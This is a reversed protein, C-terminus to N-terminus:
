VSGATARGPLPWRTRAPVPSFWTRAGAAGSTTIGFGPRLELRDNFANTQDFQVAGGAGGKLIGSVTLTTAGGATEVAFDDTDTGASKVASNPGVAVSIPTGDSVANIGDEVTGTVNGKATIEVPGSGNNFAYIGFTGGAVKASATVTLDTANTNNYVEIGARFDGTVDGNATIETAGSGYNRALIGRQGGTVTSNATVTLATATGANEAHIGDAATGTVAGNATIKTAGTGFNNAEIGSNGGKVVSRATM